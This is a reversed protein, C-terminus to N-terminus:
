RDVKKQYCHKKISKPEINIYDIDMPYIGNIAKLIPSQKELKNIGGNVILYINKDKTKKVTKGRAYKPFLESNPAIFGRSSKWLSDLGPFVLGNHMHGSLVLDVNELQSNSNWVENEFIKRPSHCLLVNYKDNEINPFKERIDQKMLEGDDKHEPNHYYEDPAEYGILRINDNIAMENELVQIGEINNIMDWIKPSEIYYWKGNYVTNKDHNGCSIYVPAIQGLLKIWELLGCVQETNMCVNLDDIVDGPICTLNPSYDAINQNIKDFKRLDFENSFHIDALLALKQSQLLKETEINYKLNRIM